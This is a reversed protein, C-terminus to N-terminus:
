RLLQDLMMLKAVALQSQTTILTEIATPYPLLNIDNAKAFSRTLTRDIATEPLIVTRSVKKEYVLRYTQNGITVEGHAARAIFKQTQNVGGLAGTVAKIEIIATVHLTGAYGEALSASDRVVFGIMRDPGLANPLPAKGSASVTALRVDGVFATDILRGGKVQAAKAAVRAQERLRDTLLRVAPLHQVVRERLEGSFASEYGQATQRARKAGQKGAATASFKAGGGATRLRLSRELCRSLDNETLRLGARALDDSLDSIAQIAGDGAILRDSADVLRNILRNYGTRDLVRALDPVAEELAKAAAAANPKKLPQKAAASVQEALEGLPKLLGKDAM